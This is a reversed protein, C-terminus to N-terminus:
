EDAAGRYRVSQGILSVTENPVEGVVTIQRGDLVRAFAHMAGSETMGEFVAEGAGPDAIFVSVTAMGDSLVMHQVPESDATLPYRVNETIQFGPPMKDISWAADPAGTEFEDMVRDQSETSIATAGDGDAQFRSVPIPKEHVVLSTVMSQEVVGGRRDVMVSKLPIGTREDSCIEYGFRFDDRPLIRVLRCSRDAVRDVEAVSFAYYADLEDLDSSITSPLGRGKRGPDVVIFRTGSLACSVLDGRRNIERTEGNLSIVRERTVGAEHSHLVEFSDVDDGHTVVVTGEYNLTEIARGARELWHKVDQDCLGVTPLVLLGALVLYRM